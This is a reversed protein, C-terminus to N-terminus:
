VINWEDWGASCPPNLLALAECHDGSGFLGGECEGRLSENMRQGGLINALLKTRIVLLLISYIRRGREGVGFQISPHNNTTTGLVASFHAAHHPSWEHNNYQQWLVQTIAM